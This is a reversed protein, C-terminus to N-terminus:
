KRKMEHIDDSLRDLKERMVAVNVVADEIKRLRNSHDELTMAELKLQSASFVTGGKDMATLKIEDETQKKVVDDFRESLRGYGILILAAVGFSGINPKWFQSRLVNHLGENFGEPTM